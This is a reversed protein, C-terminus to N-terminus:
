WSWRRGRMASSDRSVVREFYGIANDRRKGELAFIVGEPDSCLVACSGGPVEVPGDLIKGGGATVRKTAADVDGVNFYYLWFPAPATPPKTFVGGITQGAATFLQYRGEGGKDETEGGDANAKQWGFLEGYFAMAAEADAALLEHWGVHGLAGLGAPQEQVPKLWKFLALRATQPDDFISFRSIDPIDTPPVYVTGGLRKVQDAAVDVDDVEVYGMWHPTVGAQRAKASLAAMGCVPNLGATFLIYPLGPTSADRSGWGMVKTYFAKASAIDATSLEYWIFRGHSSAM